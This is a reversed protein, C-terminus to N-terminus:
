NIKPLRPITDISDFSSQLLSQSPFFPSNSKSGQQVRGTISRFTRVGSRHSREESEGSKEQENDSHLIVDNLQGLTRPGAGPLTVQVGNIVTCSYGTSKGHYTCRSGCYQGHRQLLRLNGNARFDRCLQLHHYIGFVKWVLFIQPFTKQLQSTLGFSLALSFQTACSLM